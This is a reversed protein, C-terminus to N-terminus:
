YIRVKKTKYKKNSESTLSSHVFGGNEDTITYEYMHGENGKTSLTM